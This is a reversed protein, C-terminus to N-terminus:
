KVQAERKGEHPTAPPLSGNTGQTLVVDQKSSLPNGVKPVEAKPSPNSLTSKTVHASNAVRVVDGEVLFAGGSEVVEVGKELGSVIEIQNGFRRGVAVKIEHVHTDTGVVFVYAAGSRLVVASHPLAMVATNQQTLQFTGRVFMGAVLGMSKPLDVLVQGYRTQPNIAPAIARVVGHVVQGQPSMLEVKIGKRILGLEDATLDAHWELRGQRILRFLEMGPQTLTGVTASRASVVGADSAKISLQALRLAGAQYRARQTEMRARATNENTTAQEAQAASVFGSERLKNSRAAQASAEALMAESEKLSAQVEAVNAAVTDTALTALVQGKRVQDGVNVRVDAIRIGTVESSIVAEQWAVVSGNASLSQVWKAPQLIATNVTLAPKSTSAVPTPAATSIFPVKWLVVGLLAASVAGIKIWRNKNSSSNRLPM